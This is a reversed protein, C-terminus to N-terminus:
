ADRPGEIGEPLPIRLREGEEDVLEDPHLARNADCLQWFQEPDDLHTATITDLREGGAVVHERLTAFREPPPVFRRRLYVIPEADGGDGTGDGADPTFVATPIAFYRSTRPFQSM